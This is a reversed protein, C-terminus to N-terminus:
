MQFLQAEHLSDEQQQYQEAVDRVQLSPMPCRGTKGQQTSCNYGKKKNTHPPLSPNSTQFLM